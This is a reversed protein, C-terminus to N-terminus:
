ILASNLKSTNQEPNKHRYMYSTLILSVPRYTEKRAIDKRTKRDPYYEGYQIFKSQIQLHEDEINQFFTQSPNMNIIKPHNTSNVPSAM